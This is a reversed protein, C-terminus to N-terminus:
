ISEVTKLSKTLEELKFVLVNIDRLRSGEYDELQTFFQKLSNKM